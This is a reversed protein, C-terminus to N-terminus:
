VKKPIGFREGAFLNRDFGRRVYKRNTRSLYKQKMRELLEESKREYLQSQTTMGHQLCIDALSMYVLLHHYQPPWEPTDSDSTMRKPRSLYRIQIDTDQKPPRYVRLSPRPGCEDLIKVKQLEGDHYTWSGQNMWYADPWGLCPIESFEHVFKKVGDISERTFAKQKVGIDIATTDGVIDGIHQWRGLLSDQSVSNTLLQIVMDSVFDPVAEDGGGAEAGLLGKGLEKLATGPGVERRYIRKVRGTFRTSTERDADLAIPARMRLLTALDGSSVATPPVISGYTNNRRFTGESGETNVFVLQSGTSGELTTLATGTWDTTRSVPSPASEVGGYVYTYCYEYITFINLNSLAEGTFGSTGKIGEFPSSSGGEEDGVESELFGVGEPFGFIAPPRSPPDVTTYMGEMAVVVDGSDERDFNLYEAKSSDVFLIRGRDPATNTTPVADSSSESFSVTKLGSDLIGLVEVCDAPLHYKRFEIKWDDLSKKTVSIDSYYVTGIPVTLPSYVGEDDITRLGALRELEFSSLAVIGADAAAEATYIGAARKVRTVPSPDEIPRDLVVGACGRDAAYGDPFEDEDLIGRRTQYAYGAKGAAAPGDYVATITFERETAGHSKSVYSTETYLDGSKDPINFVVTNGLMERVPYAQDTGHFSLVNSADYHDAETGVRITKNTSGKIDARLTLNTTKQRFLWNYQSSIQLYHRNVVRAVQDKYAALEPNYDLATNIEEIIAKLNM